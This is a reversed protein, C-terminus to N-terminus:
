IYIIKILEDYNINKNHGLANIACYTGNIFTNYQCHSHGCLWVKINPYEMIYELNSAYRDFLYKYKLKRFKPVILKYSPLHHSIIIINKNLNDVINNELWNISKNHLKHNTSKTWLTTGFLITYKNLKYYNNNLFFVNNFNSVIDDIQDNVFNMKTISKNNYEHNGAIIFTKEFENSSYKLLQKYNSHNPNGIDGCLALYNGKVPIKIINKRRELHLDSIYQLLKNNKFLHTLM